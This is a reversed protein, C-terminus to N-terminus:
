DKWKTKKMCVFSNLWEIPKSIDVKHIIGEKCLKDLEGKSLEQMAHPVHWIPETHPIDGDCLKIPIEGDMCGIGHFLHPFETEIQKKFSDSEVNHVVKILNEWNLQMLILGVLNLKKPDTIGIIM